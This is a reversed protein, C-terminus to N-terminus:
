SEHSDDVLSELTFVQGAVDKCLSWRRLPNYFWGLSVDWGMGSTEMGLRVSGREVVLM